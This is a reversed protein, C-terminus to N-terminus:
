TICCIICHIICFLCISCRASMSQQLLPMLADALSLGRGSNGVGGALRELIALCRTGVKRSPAQAGQQQGAGQRKQGAVKAPKNAQMLLNSSQATPQNTSFIMRALSHLVSWSHMHRRVQCAPVQVAAAAHITQENTTASQTRLRSSSQKTRPQFYSHYAPWCLSLGCPMSQWGCYSVHVSYAEYRTDHTKGKCVSLM